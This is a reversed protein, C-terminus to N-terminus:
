FVSKSRPSGHMRNEIDAADVKIEDPNVKAYVMKKIEDLLIDAEKSAREIRDLGGMAKKVAEKCELPLGERNLISELVENTVGAGLLAVYHKNSLNHFIERLTITKDQVM